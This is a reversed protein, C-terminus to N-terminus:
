NRWVPVGKSQFFHVELPRGTLTMREKAMKLVRRRIDRNSRDDPDDFLAVFIRDLNPNAAIAERIHRDYVSLRHGFVVLSGDIRKLEGLCESLYANKGIRRMKTDAYGEAVYLPRRGDGLLEGEIAEILSPYDGSRLRRTVGGHEYLYFCGHLYLHKARKLSGPRFAPGGAKASSRFGDAIKGGSRLVVWGILLDYNTTFVRDYHDLFRRCHAVEEDTICTSSADHRDIMVECFVGRVRDQWQRVQSRPLGLEGPTEARGLWRIVWEVNHTRRRLMLRALESDEDAIREQVKEFLNGYDYREGYATSFGSGLLLHVPREATCDLVDAYALVEPKRRQTAVPAVQREETGTLSDRV